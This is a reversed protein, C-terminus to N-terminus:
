MFIPWPEKQSRTKTNMCLAGSFKLPWQLWTMVSSQVFQQEETWAVDFYFDEPLCLSVHAELLIKSSLIPPSKTSPMAWVMALAVQPQEQDMEHKPQGRESPQKQECSPWNLTERGPVMFPKHLSFQSPLPSPPRRSDQTGLSRACGM